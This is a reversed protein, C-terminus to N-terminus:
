QEEKEWKRGDEERKRKSSECIGDEEWGNGKRDLKGKSVGERYDIKRDGEKKRDM